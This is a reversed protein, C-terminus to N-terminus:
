SLVRRLYELSQRLETWEQEALAEAGAGREYATRWDEAQPRASRWLVGLAPLAERTDRPAYEDWWSRELFPILRAELAGMELTRSIPWEQAQFVDFLAPFDVVGAGVACRALRAGTEARYVRYDKLHAHRLYPAVRRAFALPEEMVALPNGTDLTIGLYRSEFRGCLMLLDDSSADQHNELAIAVRLREALPLVRELEAACHRLHATWGGPFGRRDGCLVGSLTCRLVPSGLAAALELERPLTEASVRNGALILRVGCAEAHERM